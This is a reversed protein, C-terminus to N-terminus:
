VSIRRRSTPVGRANSLGIAFVLGRRLQLCTPSLARPPVHAAAAISRVAAVARWLGLGLAYLQAHEAKMPPARGGVDQLQLALLQLPM